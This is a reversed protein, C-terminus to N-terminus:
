ASSPCPCSKPEPVPHRSAAPPWQIPHPHHSPGHRHCASACSCSCCCCCLWLWLAPAEHHRSHAPATHARPPRRSDMGPPEPAGDMASVGGALGSWGQRSLNMLRLPRRFCLRNRTDSPSPLNLRASARSSIEHLVASRSSPELFLAWGLLKQEEKKEKRPHVCVSVTLPRAPPSPLPIRAMSPAALGGPVSERRGRGLGGARGM